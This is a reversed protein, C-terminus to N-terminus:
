TSLSVRTWGSSAWSRDTGAAGGFRPCDPLVPLTKSEGPLGAISLALFSAVAGLWGVSTTVHATLSLRRLGPTM